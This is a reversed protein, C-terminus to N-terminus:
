GMGEGVRRMVVRSTRRKTSSCTKVGAFPPRSAAPRVMASITSGITSDADFQFPDGPGIVRRRSARGGGSRDTVLERFSRADREFGAALELQATGRMAVGVRRDARHVDVHQLAGSARRGRRRGRPYRDRDTRPARGLSRRRGSRRHLLVEVRAPGVTAGHHAVGRPAPSRRDRHM